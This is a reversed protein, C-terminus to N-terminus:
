HKYLKNWFWQEIIEFHKDAMPSGIQAIFQGNKSIIEDWIYNFNERFIVDITEGKEIILFDKPRGLASNIGFNVEIKLEKKCRAIKNTQKVGYKYSM